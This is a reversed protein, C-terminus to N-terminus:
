NNMEMEFGHHGDIFVEYRDLLKKGNLLVIIGYESTEISNKLHVGGPESVCSGATTNLQIWAIDIYSITVLGSEVKLSIRALAGGKM